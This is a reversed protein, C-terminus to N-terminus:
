LVKKKLAILRKLKKEMASFTIKGNKYKKWLKRVEKKTALEMNIRLKTKFGASVPKVNNITFGKKKLFDAYYRSMVKKRNVLGVNKQATIMRDASSATVFDSINKIIDDIEKNRTICISTGLENPTNEPFWADGFAVDAHEAFIDSCADCTINHYLHNLYVFGFTEGNHFRSTCKMNQNSYLKVQCNNCKIGKDKERFTVGDIHKFDCKEAASIYEVMGKGPMGGCILGIIYKVREKLQRDQKMALRLATAQCPLCVVATLENRAKISKITESLEIPYYASGACSAIEECTSVRKSVFLKTRDPNGSACYVSKIMNRKLLQMLLESCLGGSASHERRSPVYGEYCSLIYGTQLSKEKLSNSWLSDSLLDRDSSNLLVPCSKVCKGCNKCKESDVKPIYHGIDDESMEIADCLGACIGCGTCLQKSRHVCDMM